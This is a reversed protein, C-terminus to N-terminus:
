VVRTVYLVCFVGAILLWLADLATPGERGLRLPMPHGTLSRARMALGVRWARNYARLLLEGCCSALVLWSPRLASKSMLRAERAAARKYTSFLESQGRM